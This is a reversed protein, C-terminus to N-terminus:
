FETQPSHEPSHELPVWHGRAGLKQERAILFNKKKMCIM